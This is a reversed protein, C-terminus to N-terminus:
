SSFIVGHIITCYDENMFQGKLVEKGVFEDAKNKLVHHTVCFRKNLGFILAAM